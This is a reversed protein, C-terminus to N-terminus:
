WAAQHAQRVPPSHPQPPLGRPFGGSSVIQATQVSSGHEQAFYADFGFAAM